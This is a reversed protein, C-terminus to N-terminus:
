PAAPQARAATGALEGGLEPGALCGAAAARVRTRSGPVAVADAVNPHRALVEEEVERPHINVRGAIHRRVSRVGASM